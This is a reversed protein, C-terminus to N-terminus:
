PVKLIQWVSPLLIAAPACSCVCIVVVVEFARLSAYSELVLTAVEFILSDRSGPM